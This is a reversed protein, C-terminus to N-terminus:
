PAVAPFTRTVIGSLLEGAWESSLSGIAEGAFPLGKLLVHAPNAPIGTTAPLPDECFYFDNDFVSLAKVAQEVNVEVFRATKGLSRRAALVRRIEDEDRHPDISLVLRETFSLGDHDKATRDFASADVEFEGTLPSLTVHSGGVYRVVNKDDALRQHAGSAENM